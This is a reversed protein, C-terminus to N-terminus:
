GVKTLLQPVVCRLRHMVAVQVLTWLTHKHCRLCFSVDATRFSVKTNQELNKARVESRRSKRSDEPRSTNMQTSLQLFM